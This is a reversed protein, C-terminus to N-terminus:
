IKKIVGFGITNNDATRFVVRDGIHTVIKKDIFCKLIYQGAKNIFKVMKNNIGIAQVETDYEGTKSHLIFTYGPTILVEDSFIISEVFIRNVSVEKEEMIKDNTRYKDVIEPIKELNEGTYGSVQLFIINRYSLKKAYETIKREITKIDKHIDCKNCLVLLNKCGTSRALQLDEKVTGKDFSEEFEKPISSVVLCIIDIPIKFLASVLARIYIKHGPTDILTYKKEKYSFNCVDFDQTKTKNTLVEGDIKDLLMSWKSKKNSIEIDTLETRYFKTDEETSTFYGVKYLLHGAITSKGSDTQGCLLFSM